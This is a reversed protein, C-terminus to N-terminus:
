LAIKWRLCMCVPGWMVLLVGVQRMDCHPVENGAGKGAKTGKRRKKRRREM